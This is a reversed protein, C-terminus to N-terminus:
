CQLNEKVLVAVAEKLTRIGEWFAVSCLFSPCVRFLRTKGGRQFEGRGVYANHGEINGIVKGHLRVEYRPYFDYSYGPLRDVTVGAGYQGM